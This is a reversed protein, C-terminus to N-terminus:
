FEAKVFEQNEYNAPEKFLDDIEDNDDKDAEPILNLKLESFKEDVAETVAKKIMDFIIKEDAQIIM